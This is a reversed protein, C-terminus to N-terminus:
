SRADSEDTKERARKIDVRNNVVYMRIKEMMVRHDEKKDVIQRLFEEDIKEAIAWTIVKLQNPDLDAKNVYQVINLSKKSEEPTIKKNLKIKKKEPKFEKSSYEECYDCLQEFRHKDRLDKENIIEKIERILYAYDNSGTSSVEEGTVEEVESLKKNLREIDAKYREEKEQQQVEYDALTKKYRDIEAQLDDISKDYADGIEKEFEEIAKSEICLKILRVMDEPKRDKIQEFIEMSPDLVISTKLLDMQRYSYEFNIYGDMQDFSIGMAVSSNIESLIEMVYEKSYEMNNREYYQNLESIKKDKYQKLTFNKPYRSKSSTDASDKIKEGSTDDETQGVYDSTNKIDEETFEHIVNNDDDFDGAYDAEDDASEIYRMTEFIDGSVSDPINLVDVEDNNINLNKAM